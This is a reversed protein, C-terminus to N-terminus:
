SGNEEQNMQSESSLNVLPMANAEQFDEILQEALFVLAANGLLHYAEETKKIVTESLPKEQKVDVRQFFYASGNPAHRVSSWSGIPMAAIEAIDVDLDSASRSLSFLSKQLKWQENLPVVEFIGKESRPADSAFQVDNKLTEDAPNKELKSKIFEIYPLLRKSAAERGSIKVQKGSENLKEQSSQIEQLTKAFYFDAVLDKVDVFPKFNKDSLQFLEPHSKQVIPYYDELAKNVLPDLISHRNAEAFTLIESDPAKELVEIMYYHRKDGSYRNVLNQSPDDLLDILDKGLTIGKLQFRGKYPIYIVIEEAPANKLAADIWEPHAKLIQKRSFSDLRSRTRKDLQDLANRREDLSVANKSSLEPFEKQLLAWGFDEGQWQWMELLNVKAILLNKDIQSVKLRYRKQVLEPYKLAVENANLHTDPFFANVKDKPKQGTAALYFEFNQLSAYDALQLAEPLRYMEGSFQEKAYSVIPLVTSAAIFTSNAEDQFLRRSLLVNQWIKVAKAQDMGLRRLQENFYEASNKVGLYPSESNQQFSVEANRILDALAESQSVEYGRMKALKASNIMFEASLRMFRPGFWDDLTHYGFLALDTRDLNEDHAIWSQQKEQYYLVQRVKPAPLAREGLFLAVRAKVAEKDLPNQSQRLLQFNSKMQPAFYNWVTQTSIFQAEPHVYLDYAKEKALRMDFDAALEQAYKTLLIEAIGTKVIDNAVFGDNLFNPGWMGAYLWKDQADSGLFLITENLEQQSVFSKDIAQFAVKDAPNELQQLTSFTGFFSFSIVIIVTIFAFFYRQYKRFFGLM